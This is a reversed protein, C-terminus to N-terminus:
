VPALPEHEGAPLVVEIGDGPRVDGGAAVIAMVGAKRVLNGEADHELTAQMLGEQLGSLQGCPNRLGTVEVVAEAGLKLRAGTPLALLDVGATTVNEGIAGPAVSFGSRGLEAFLEAQM